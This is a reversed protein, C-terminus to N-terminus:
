RSHLNNLVNSMNDLSKQVSENEAVVRLILIFSSVVPNEIIEITVNEQPNASMAFAANVMSLFDSIAQTNCGNDLTESVNLRITKSDDYIFIINKETLDIYGVCRSAEKSIHMIANKFKQSANGKLEIYFANNKNLM